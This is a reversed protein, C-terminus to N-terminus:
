APDVETVPDGATQTIAATWATTADDEKYVTGTGAANRVRNRM